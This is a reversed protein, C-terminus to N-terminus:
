RFVRRYREEKEPSLRNDGVNERRQCDGFGAVKVPMLCDPCRAADFSPFPCDALM